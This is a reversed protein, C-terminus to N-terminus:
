DVRFVLGPAYWGCTLPAAVTFDHKLFLVFGLSMFGSSESLAGNDYIISGFDLGLNSKSKLCSMTNGRTHPPLPLSLSIFFKLMSCILVFSHICTNVVATGAFFFFFNNRVLQM